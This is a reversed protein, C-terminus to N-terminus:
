KEESPPQNVMHYATLVLRNWLEERDAGHVEADDLAADMCALWAEARAPTIPFPLHRARLRPHGHELTYLPPGGCFQTLFQYQKKMVPEIDTPFIPALDPHKLVRPYFSEVIRQITQAGGIREYLTKVEKTIVSM